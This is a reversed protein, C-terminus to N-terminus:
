FLTGMKFIPLYLSIVIGGIMIGLFVMLAPELLHMLNDLGLDVEEEYLTAVKLLMKDLTGSEEGVAVMQTLSYPFERHSAMALHIARGKTVKEQIRQISPFYITNTFLNATLRLADQIPVGAAFTTALTRSFRALLAKQYLNGLLPLALMLRNLRMPYNRLTFIAAAILGLMAIGYRKLGKGLGILFQTSAPLAVDLSNFLQEFQPTVWMLLISSVILAILLVLIPYILAKKLKRKLSQVREQHVAIRELMIDLTGSIEGCHILSCFLHDFYRPQQKLAGTFTQGGKLSSQLTDILVQLPKVQTSKRIIDLSQILPIQASILAALQRSFYCIDSSGLSKKLM